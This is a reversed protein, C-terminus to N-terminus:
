KRLVGPSEETKRCLFEKYAYIETTPLLVWPRACEGRAWSVNKITMVLSFSVHDQRYGTPVTLFATLHGTVHM